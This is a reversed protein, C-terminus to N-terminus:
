SLKQTKRDLPRPGGCVKLVVPNGLLVLVTVKEVGSSMTARTPAVLLLVVRVTPPVNGGGDGIVITGGVKSLV